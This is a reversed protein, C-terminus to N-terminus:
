LRCEKGVRREESRKGFQDRAAGRHVVASVERTPRGQMKGSFGAVDRRDLKEQGIAGIGSRNICQSSCGFAYRLVQIPRRDDRRQGSAHIGIARQNAAGATYVRTWGGAEM